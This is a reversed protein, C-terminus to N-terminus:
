RTIQLAEMLQKRFFDSRRTDWALTALAGIVDFGGTYTGSGPKMDGCRSSSSAPDVGYRRASRSCCRRSRRDYRRRAEAVLEAPLRAQWTNTTPSRAKPSAGTLSSSASSRSLGDLAAAPDGRQCGPRPCGSLCGGPVGAVDAAVRPGHGHDCRADPDASRCIPANVTTGTGTCRLPQSVGVGAPAIARGSARDRWSERASTTRSTCAALSATPGSTM